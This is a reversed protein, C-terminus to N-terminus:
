RTEQGSNGATAKRAYERLSRAAQDRIKNRVQPTWGLLWGSAGLAQGSWRWLNFSDVERVIRGNSLAMETHVRNVVPRGTAGFSYHAVWDVSARSPGDDLINVEIAFDEARTLLMNWMMRAGRANLLPFVPDSFTANEAYLLGMTYHDRVMFAEYFQEAVGM